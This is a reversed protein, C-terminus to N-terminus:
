SVCDFNMEKKVTQLKARYLKQGHYNVNIFKPESKLCFLCLIKLFSLFFSFSPM